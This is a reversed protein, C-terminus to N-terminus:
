GVEDGGFADLLQQAAGRSLGALDPRDDRFGHAHLPEIELLHGGQERHGVGRQELLHEVRGALELLVDVAVADDEEGREVDAVLADVRAHVAPEPLVVVLDLAAGEGVVLEAGFDVGEDALAVLPQHDVVAFM